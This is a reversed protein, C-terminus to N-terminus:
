VLARIGPDKVQVMAAELVTRPSGDAFLVRREHELAELRRVTQEQSSAAAIQEVQARMEENILSVRADLQVSLVDRFLGILDVLARDVEDVVLRKRRRKQDKALAKAEADHSRKMAGSLRTVGEAYFRSKLLEDEAADLQDARSNAVFTAADFVEGAANVCAALDRLGMPARLYQQRRERTAEDTALARARGIHGQSARAAFAAITEDVGCTEVLMAVIDEIPPTRLAVHRTRSAITPLVDEVSPACLVWVTHPTPEELSKLLFNASQDNLRDADEIVIVRWMATMPAQAAMQILPKVEELIIDKGEPIEVHVDSHGGHSATRCAQCHGCGQEMCVLAAAFSTAARSRGSGPPGTILWAHSMAPGPEGRTIAAADRVAAVLTEVAEDQGVLDSWLAPPTM